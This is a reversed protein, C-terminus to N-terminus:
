QQPSPPHQPTPLTGDTSTSLGGEPMLPATDNQAELWEGEVKCLFTMWGGFILQCNARTGERQLFREDAEAKSGRGEGLICLTGQKWKGKYLADNDRTFVNQLCQRAAGVLSAASAFLSQLSHLSQLPTAPPNDSGVHATQSPQATDCQQQSMSVQLLLVCLILLLQRRM